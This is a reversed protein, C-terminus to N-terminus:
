RSVVAREVTQEEVEYAQDLGITTEIAKRTAIAREPDLGTYGTAKLQELATRVGQYAAIIFSIADGVCKYGMADLEATNFVPRGIRNGASNVYMLPVGCDRPAREAEERTNPFLMVMDAGGEVYLQARRVGEAYGATRMTDTCAVIVFDPDQRPNAHLFAFEVETWLRVVFGGLLVHDPALRPTLEPPLHKGAARQTRRRCRMGQVGLASAIRGINKLSPNREDGESGGIYNPDLM